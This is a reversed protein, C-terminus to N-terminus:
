FRFYAGYCNYGLPQSSCVACFPTGVLGSMKVRLFPCWTLLGGLGTRSNFQLVRFIRCQLNCDSMRLPVDYHQSIRRVYALSGASVTPFPHSSLLPHPIHTACCNVPAVVLWYHALFNTLGVLLPLLLGYLHHLKLMHTSISQNSFGPLRVFITSRSHFM